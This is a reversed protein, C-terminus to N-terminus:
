FWKIFEIVLVPQSLFGSITLLMLSVVKIFISVARRVICCLWQQASSCPVRFAANTVTKEATESYVRWRERNTTCSSSSTSNSFPYAPLHQPSSKKKKWGAQLTRMCHHFAAADRGESEKLMTGQVKVRSGGRDWRTVPREAAAGAHSRFPHCGTPLVQPPSAPSCCEMVPGQSVSTMDSESIPRLSWVQLQIEKEGFEIHSGSSNIWTRGNKANM